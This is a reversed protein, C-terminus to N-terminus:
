GNNSVPDDAPALPPVDSQQPDVPDETESRNFIAAFAAGFQNQFTTTPAPEPTPTPDVVAVPENVNSNGCAAVSGLLLISATAKIMSKNTMM